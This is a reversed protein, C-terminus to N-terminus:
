DQSRMKPTCILIALDNHETVRLDLYRSIRDAESSVDIATNIKNKAVRDVTPTVIILKGAPKLLEAVDQLFADKNKVFAYVLRCIVLDYKATKPMDEASCVWFEAGTVPTSRALSIAEISWDIGDSRIGKSALKKVLQGDGCGIDLACCTKKCGPQVDLATLYIQLEENSVPRFRGGKAFFDDWKEKKIVFVMTYYFYMFLSTRMDFISRSPPRDLLYIQGFVSYNAM